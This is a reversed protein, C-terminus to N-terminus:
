DDRADTNEAVLKLRALGEDWLTDLWQRAAALGAPELRYVNRTGQPVHAILGAAELQRLHRSVAPRSVPLAAAIEGVPAPQAALRTLIQRRLDSGLADFIEAQSAM